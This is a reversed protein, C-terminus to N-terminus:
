HAAGLKVFVFKLPLECDDGLWSKPQVLLRFNMVANKRMKGCIAANQRM